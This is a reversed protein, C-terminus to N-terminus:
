VPIELVDRAEIWGFRCRVLKWCRRADEKSDELM